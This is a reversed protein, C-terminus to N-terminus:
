HGKTYPLGTGRSRRHEVLLSSLLRTRGKQVASMSTNISKEFTTFCLIFECHSVRVASPHQLGPKAGAAEDSACDAKPVGIQLADLLM